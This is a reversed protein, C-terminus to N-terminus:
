NIYGLSRLLELTEADMPTAPGVGAPREQLIRHLWEAVLVRASDLEASKRGALDFQELSDSRVDYLDERDGTPHEPARVYYSFRSTRVGAVGDVQNGMFTARRTWQEGDFLPVLGTTRTTASAVM